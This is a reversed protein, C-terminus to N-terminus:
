ERLWPMVTLGVLMGEPSLLRTVTHGWPEIRNNVLLIYGEKLCSNTIKEIDAVEFEM